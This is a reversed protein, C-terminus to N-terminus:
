RKAAAGTHFAPSNKIEEIQLAHREAHKAMVILMEHASVDGFLPHPHTIETARLDESNEEVFRIAGARSAEFKGCAQDLNAFRGTPRAREPAEAKRSRDSMREFFDERNLAGTTRPRRPGSVLGFMATEAIAVHEVTDLISWQGDAPHLRSQEASIGAFSALFRQRSDRLMALLKQKDANSTSVTNPLTSKM